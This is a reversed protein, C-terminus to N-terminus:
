NYFVNGVTRRGKPFEMQFLAMIKHHLLWDRLRYVIIGSYLKGVFPLLSVGRYNGPERQSGKGKYIPQILAPNWEKTFKWKSRIMNFLKLLIDTGETNTVLMKWAEAPIGNCVAAKNNKM